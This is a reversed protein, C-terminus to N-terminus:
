SQKNNYMNTCGYIVAVILVLIGIGAALPIWKKNVM